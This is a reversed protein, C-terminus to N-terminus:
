GGQLPGPSQGVEKEMWRLFASVKLRLDADSTDEVLAHACAARTACFTYLTKARDPTVIGLDVGEKIMRGLTTHKERYHSIPHSLLGALHKELAKGCVLGALQSAGMWELEKAHQTLREPSDDMRPEYIRSRLNKALLRVALPGFADFNGRAMDLYMLEQESEPYIVEIGFDADYKRRAGLEYETLCLLVDRALLETLGFSHLDLDGRLEVAIKGPIPTGQLASVIKAAIREERFGFICGEVIFHGYIRLSHDHDVITGRYVPVIGWDFHPLDDWPVARSVAAIAPRYIDDYAVGEVEREFWFAAAYRSSSSIIDM